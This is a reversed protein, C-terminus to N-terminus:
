FRVNLAAAAIDLRWRINGSLRGAAPDQLFIPADHPVLHSFSFDLEWRENM